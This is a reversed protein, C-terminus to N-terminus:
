VRRECRERVGGGPRAAICDCGEIRDAALGCGASDRIGGRRCCGGARGNWGERGLGAVRGCVVMVGAM